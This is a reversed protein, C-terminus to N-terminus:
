KQLFKEQLFEEKGRIQDSKCSSRLEVQTRLLECVKKLAAGLISSSTTIGIQYSRTKKVTKMMKLM